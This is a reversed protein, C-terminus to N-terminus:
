RERRKCFGSVCWYGVASNNEDYLMIITYGDYATVKNRTEDNYLPARQRNENQIDSDM